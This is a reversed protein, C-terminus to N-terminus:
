GDPGDPDENSDGPSGEYKAWGVSKKALAQLRDRGTFRDAQAKTWTQQWRM